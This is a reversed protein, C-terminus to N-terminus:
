SIYCFTIFLDWIKVHAQLCYILDVFFIKFDFNLFFLFVKGLAMGSVRCLPGKGLALGCCEVFSIEFFFGKQFLPGCGM